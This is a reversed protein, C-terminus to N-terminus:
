LGIYIKKEREIRLEVFMEWVLAIHTMYLHMYKNNQKERPQKRGLVMAGVCEKRVYIRWISLDGIESPTYMSTRYSWKDRSIWREGYPLSALTDLKMKNVLSKMSKTDEAFVGWPSYFHLPVQSIFKGQYIFFGTDIQLVEQLFVSIYEMLDRGRKANPWKQSMLILKSFVENLEAINDRSQQNDLHKFPRNRSIRYAILYIAIYIPVSYITKWNVPVYLGMWVALPEIVFANFLSLIIAKLIPSFRPKHELLVMVEIALMLNWPIYPPIAPVFKFPYFWMGYSNGIFDLGSAILLVFMGSFCVGATKQKKRFLFWFIVPGITLFLQLWWQWTFLIHDKWIDFYHQNAAVVQNITNRVDALIAESMEIGEM